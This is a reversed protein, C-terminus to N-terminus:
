MKLVVGLAVVIMGIFCSLISKRWAFLLVVTVGIGVAKQFIEMVNFLKTKNEMQMLNLQMSRLARIVILSCAFLLTGTAAIGLPRGLGLAVGGVFVSTLLLAFSGTGFFLTSYYRCLSLPDAASAYEPYYRQVSQQLGFKALVTLVLVTNQILNLTGYDAVSFVRTFIPFSAFGLLMLAVRGGLYHSSHKMLTKLPTLSVLPGMFTRSWIPEAATRGRGNVEGEEM